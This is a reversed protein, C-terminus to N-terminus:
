NLNKYIFNLLLSLPTKKDHMVIALELGYKVSLELIVMVTMESLPIVYV